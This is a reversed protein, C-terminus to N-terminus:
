LWPVPSKHELAAAMVRPHYTCSQVFKSPGLARGPPDYLWCHDSRLCATLKAAQHVPGPILLCPQPHRIFPVGAKALTDASQNSESSYENNTALTSHQNCRFRILLETLQELSVALQGCECFFICILSVPGTRRAWGCGGGGEEHRRAAGV